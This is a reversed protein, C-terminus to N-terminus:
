YAAIGNFGSSPPFDGVDGLGSLLGDQGIAFIGVDGTSSNLSYLYKSDASIAIDLNTSGAPNVGAITGGIPTLSGNAGLAYASINASGANSAYVWKGDPTIANWCNAAGLTPVGLSIPTLTGNPNVTYSSITAGNTVGSPGTESVVITRLSSFAVSFVGPAQGHNVTVLGLTGSDRIPFIDINNPTRETVALFKGDPSISLSSAGTTNATLIVTSDPIQKLKNGDFRFAVVSGPGGANLVYVLNNWQAVAVPEAGGSPAKDIFKLSANHVRFVSVTGSAANVAFLFSHDQSLTLSGQSQLPDTVGGSGRGETGYRGADYLSGDGNREFAIIENKDAANTMVFVAGTKAPRAATLSTTGAALMALWACLTKSM